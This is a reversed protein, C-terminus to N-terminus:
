TVSDDLDIKLQHHTEAVDSDTWEKIKTLAAKFATLQTLLNHVTLDADTWQDRLGRVTTISRSLVDIISVVSAAAGIIALAEAM